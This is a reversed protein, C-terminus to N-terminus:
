TNRVSTSRVERGRKKVESEFFYVMGLEEMVKAPASQGFAGLTDGVLDCYKGHSRELM